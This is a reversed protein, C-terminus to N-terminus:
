PSRELYNNIGLLLGARTQKSDSIVSVYCTLSLGQMSVTTWTRKNQLVLVKQKEM